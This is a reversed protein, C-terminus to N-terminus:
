DKCLEEIEELLKLNRQYGDPDLTAIDPVDPITFHEVLEQLTFDIACVNADEGAVARATEQAGAAPAISVKISPDRLRGEMFLFERSSNIFFGLESGNYEVDDIEGKLNLKTGNRKVQVTLSRLAYQEGARFVTDGLGNELDKKCLILDHEDLYGLRKIESLPYLPARERNYEAIADAVAKQLAPDVRWVGGNVAATLAKRHAVQVVLQMPQKGNLENLKAAATQDARGTERDYLSLQTRIRGHELFLNYPITSLQPHHLRNWEEAAADWREVTDDALLDESIIKPGKRLYLRNEFLTKCADEAQKLSSVSREASASLFGHTHGRAFYVVGTRFTSPRSGHSSPQCINGDIVLHAWIHEALARHPADAAFILRQLTAENAIAFGEGWDTFRDLAMCLCAITSDITDKATRGDHAEFAVSVAPCYSELLSNLPERYWHLDWPPNLVLCDATFRVTQLLPFFHTLDSQVRHRPDLPSPRPDEIDCGLLRAQPTNRTGRLLSGNGCTFDVIVPRLKPLPLALAKAWPEPTFYQAQGKAGANSASDLMQQFIRGTISTKKM